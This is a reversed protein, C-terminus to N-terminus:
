CDSLSEGHRVSHGRVEEGLSVDNPIFGGSRAAAALCPHRGNQITIFPKEPRATLKPRCSDPGASVDALSLLCDLMGMCQVQLLWM